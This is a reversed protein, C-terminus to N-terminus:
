IHILSLAYTIPQRDGFGERNVGREDGFNRESATSRARDVVAQRADLGYNQEIEDGTLWRTEVWDQWGDPDYSRADPDPMGDMPDVVRIVPEGLDNNDYSMRIDLYGRQQIFGDLCMDTEAFRWAANDLVQRAVKSVLKASKEDAEGGRPVYSIDVRNSIQYGIAANVAPKVIDVEHCPVGKDYQKARDEDSWQRGGALYYDELKRVHRMWDEHGRLYIEEHRAFTDRAVEIDRNRDM